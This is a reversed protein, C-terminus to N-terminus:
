TDLGLADLYLAAYQGHMSDEDFMMQARERACLGMEKRIKASKVLCELKQGIAIADGSQVLFGHQNEVVIEPVGGVATSVVPLEALMGEILTLPIGESISSLLMVDSARLLRPVDDREGVLRVLSECNLAKIETTLSRREPGDGVILWYVNPVRNVLQGFARAATLHDKLYDLRAVQVIVHADPPMDLEQRVAVHDVPKDVNNFVPVGNYIVGVRSDPFGENTVLARKVSEGVGIIRDNSRAMTRNFVVRKWRREDPFHRGHETFVLPVRGFIGRAAVSYFFPTYQHAHVLDVRADTFLARLRRICRRDLGAGRQLDVVRVGDKKLREGLTGVEDFCAVVFDFRDSMNRVMRDALVEAGGIGMRHLVHLIVPRAGQRTPTVVLERM